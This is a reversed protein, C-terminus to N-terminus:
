SVAHVESAASTVASGAGHSLDPAATSEPIESPHIPL